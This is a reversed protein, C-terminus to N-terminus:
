KISNLHFYYDSWSWRHCYFAYFHYHHCRDSHRHRHCRLCSHFRCEISTLLPFRLVIACLNSLNVKLQWGGSNRLEYTKTYSIKRTHTRNNKLTHEHTQTHTTNKTKVSSGPVKQVIEKRNSTKINGGFSHIRLVASNLEKKCENWVTCNDGSVSTNNHTQHKHLRVICVKWEPPM